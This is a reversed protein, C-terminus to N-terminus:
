YCLFGKTVVSVRGDALSAVLDVSCTETPIFQNPSRRRRWTARLLSPTTASDFFTERCGPGPRIPAPDGMSKLGHKLFGLDVLQGTWRAAAENGPDVLGADQAITHLEGGQQVVGLPSARLLGDLAELFDLHNAM